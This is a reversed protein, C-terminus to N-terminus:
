EDSLQTLLTQPDNTPNLCTYNECVYVTPKDNQKEKGDLLPSSIGTDSGHRGVVIKNPLYTHFVIEKLETTAQDTKDGIIAIEKPTHIHFDLVSLWHATGSPARAMLQHLGRLPTVGKQLYDDNDTIVALRIMVDSAISGGCPQANDFIDRPRVVLTEHDHGTDYFGGLTEDWFLNIMNDSMAIANKLWYDEFTNEYLAILGDAIFSYDELYGLLKATGNRYTRLLRDGDRLETLIFEACKRASEIYDERNLASGAESLTKIMLGNWSALVKDDLLPHIRKERIELLASKGKNLITALEDLDIANDTAFEEESKSMNLINQGEFNGRDSVNYFRSFIDGAHEGLAEIIEVRSWVFFKGEVGESDADQASYFGGLPSTMERLVYDITEEAIRKYLPKKTIQYAHVYLKAILANDYLMKEFHPVLWYSDTSYRHFGGGVQDYMGGYAMKELTFEVMELARPNYNHSHYHLLFEPTMPQPFKPAKGFGGNQYDFNGALANYAQHLIDITLPTVGASMSGNRGMQETLQSTVREIESKNNHYAQSVSTLLRPFGPMGSQDVPPFYTGGYFPKGEPTLFVTMPWGGSGTLMQVAEMYVADLDPREERAVKINVFHENMLAAIDPNEFSEREMVHCWHCASYGISLLIPKDETKSITLAEEGWPYWNVPNHAHQLLYPSTENILNNALQAELLLQDDHKIGHNNNIM